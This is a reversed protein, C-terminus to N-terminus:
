VDDKEKVCKVLLAVADGVEVKISRDFDVGLRQQLMIANCLRGLMRVASPGHEAVKAPDIEIVGPGDMYPVPAM